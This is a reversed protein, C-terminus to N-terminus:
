RSAEELLLTMMEEAFVQSAAEIAAVSTDDGVEFTMAPVGYTRYMYNKSVPRDSTTNAERTFAYVDDTLRAKVRDIWNRTFDAPVTPEEDTQTYILNRWTSHFDLFLVIDDQGSEFRRFDNQAAQTEPQTFPGWDRNLDLGSVNHRWHGKFVGDPNILPIVILNYEDRFRQSLVSDNWITDVFPILAQAGTVEPPHQRGIIVVYPKDALPADMEELKFIPREEVSQGIQDLKVFDLRAKDRMWALHDQTDIIPQAAIRVSDSEPTINFRASSKDEAVFVADTIDQWSGDGKQLKPSYRHTGGEYVLTIPVTINEAGMIDFAYWPSNNIPTNEPSIMIRYGDTNCSVANLQGSEFDTKFEVANLDCQYSPTTACASVWLGM